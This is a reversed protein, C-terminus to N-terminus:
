AEQSPASMETEVNGPLITDDLNSRPDHHKLKSRRFTQRRRGAAYATATDSVLHDQVSLNLIGGTHKGQKRDHQLRGQGSALHHQNNHIAPDFGWFDPALCIERQRQRASDSVQEKRDIVEPRDRFELKGVSTNSSIEQSLNRNQCAVM